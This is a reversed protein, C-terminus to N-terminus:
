AIAGFYLAFTFIIELKIAQKKDIIQPSPLGPMGGDTTLQNCPKFGPNV